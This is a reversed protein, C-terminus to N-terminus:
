QPVEEGVDVALVRGLEPVSYSAQGDHTGERGGDPGHGFIADLGSVNFRHQGLLPDCALCRGRPVPRGGNRGGQVEGCMPYRGRAPRLFVEYPKALVVHNTLNQRPKPVRSGCSGFIQRPTGLQPGREAGFRRPVHPRM